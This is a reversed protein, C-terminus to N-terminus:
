MCYKALIAIDDKIKQVDEEPCFDRLYDKLGDRFTEAIWMLSGETEIPFHLQGNMEELLCQETEYPYVDWERFADFPDGYCGELAISVENQLCEECTIQWGALFLKRLAPRSSWKSSLYWEIEESVKNPNCAGRLQNYAVIFQWEDQSIQRM